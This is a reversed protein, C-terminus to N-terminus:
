SCLPFRLAGSDQLVIATTVASTHATFRQCLVAERQLPQAAPAAKLDELRQAPVAIAQLASCPNVTCKKCSPHLGSLKTYAIALGPLKAVAFIIAQCLVTIRSSIVSTHTRVISIIKSSPIVDLAVM